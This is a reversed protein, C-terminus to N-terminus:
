PNNRTHMTYKPMVTFLWYLHFDHVKLECKVDTSLVCPCGPTHVQTNVGLFSVSLCIHVHQLCVCLLLYRSTQKNSGTAINIGWHFYKDADSMHFISFFSQSMEVLYM